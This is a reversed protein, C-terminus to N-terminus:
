SIDVKMHTMNAIRTWNGIEAARFRTWTGQFGSVYATNCVYTRKVGVADIITIVNGVAYATNPAYTTAPGIPDVVPDPDIPDPDVVDPEVPVVTNCTPQMFAFTDVQSVGDSIFKVQIQHAVEVNTNNPLIYVDESMYSVSGNSVVSGQEIDQSQNDVSHIVIFSNTDITSETQFVYKVKAFGAKCSPTYSVSGVGVDPVVPKPEPVPDPYVPYVPQVPTPELVPEAGRNNSSSSNCGVLGLALLSVILIKKM